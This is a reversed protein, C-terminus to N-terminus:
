FIVLCLIWTYLLLFNCTLPKSLLKLLIIASFKGLRSFSLTMWTHSAKLFGFLCSWFVALGICIIILVCFIYFLSVIKFAALSFCCTVYLPL